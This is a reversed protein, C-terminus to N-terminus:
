FFVVAGITLLAAWIALSVVLGSRLGVIFDDERRAHRRPSSSTGPSDAKDMAAVESQEGSVPAESRYDYM